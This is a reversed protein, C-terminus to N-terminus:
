KTVVPKILYFNRSTDTSSYEFKDDLRAKDFKIVRCGSNILMNKRKGIVKCSYTSM